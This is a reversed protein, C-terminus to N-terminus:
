KADPRAAVHSLASKEWFSTLRLAKAPQPKQHTHRTLEQRAPGNGGYKETFDRYQHSLPSATEPM